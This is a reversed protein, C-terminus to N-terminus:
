TQRRKGAIGTTPHLPIWKQVMASRLIIKCVQIQAFKFGIIQGLVCTKKANPDDPIDGGREAIRLIDDFSKNTYVGKPLQPIAGRQRRDYQTEPTPLVWPSLRLLEIFFAYHHLSHAAFVDVLVDLVRNANLDFYGVLAVINDWSRRARTKLVESSEVPLGTLSDHPPGISAVAETILKSFGESQERLLNYNTQKYSPSIFLLARKTRQFIAQVGRSPHSMSSPQEQEFSADKLPQQTKWYDQSAWYAVTSASAVVSQRCCLVNSLPKSLHISLERGKEHCSRVSIGVTLNRTFEGLLRRDREYSEKLTTSSEGKFAGSPLADELGADITWIMDILSAEFVEKIQSSQSSAPNVSSSPLAGLMSVVFDVVDQVVLRSGSTSLCALILSQILVALADQAMPESYNTIHAM